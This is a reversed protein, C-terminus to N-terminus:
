PQKVAGPAGPFTRLDGYFDTAPFDDIPFYNAPPNSIVSGLGSVPVFTATNFPAGSIGLDSLLNDGPRQVWSWNGNTNKIGGDMVNYGGSDLPSSSYGDYGFVLLIGNDYFLNGTFTISGYNNYIMSTAFQTYNSYFTCGMISMTGNKNYICSSYPYQGTAKNDSFICSKLTLNAWTKHIAAADSARGGKFHVRSITIATSSTTSSVQLLYSTDGTTWTPKITVGNGEITLSKNNITLTSTLEISTQGPTVGMLRITEGADANALAWRLTGPTNVSGNTDTFITVALGGDREVTVTFNETYNQGHGLGDIITATITFTGGATAILGNTITAGSDAVSWIITKNTADNPMVTVSSLSLPTGTTMTTPVGTIHDVPIIWKAYLTVNGTVTDSLFVWKNTFAAEKFWGGFLYGAKTPAPSPEALKEGNLITAPYLGTGATGGNLEWTVNWNKAKHVAVTGNTGNPQIGAKEVAVTANGEASVTIPVTFITNGASWSGEGNNTAAGGITIDAATIGFDTVDESFTFRIDTSDTTNATGGVQTATYTVMRPFNASFSETYSTTMNRYIHLIETIVRTENSSNWLTLYQRYQGAPISTKSGNRTNNTPTINTFDVTHILYDEDLKKVDMKAKTIGSEFTVSWSHTGAGNEIPALPVNRSNQTSEDIVIGDLTGQAVEGSGTYGTVTLDWTGVDLEISGSMKNNTWAESFAGNGGTKQTFDLTFKTFTVTGPLVTRAASNRGNISLVLTGKGPTGGSPNQCGLFIPLTCLVIPLLLFGYKSANRRVTTKNNTTSQKRNM